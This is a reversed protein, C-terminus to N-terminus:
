PDVLDLLGRPRWHRDAGHARGVHDMSLNKRARSQLAKSKDGPAHFRIRRFLLVHRSVPSLGRRRRLDDAHRVNVRDLSGSWWLMWLTWLVAFAIAGLKLPTSPTMTM